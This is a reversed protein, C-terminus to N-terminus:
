LTQQRHLVRMRAGGAREIARDPSPTEALWAELGAGREDVTQARHRDHPRRSQMVQGGILRHEWTPDRISLADRRELLTAPSPLLCPTHVAFDKVKIAGDADSGADISSNVSHLRLNKVSSELELFSGKFVRPVKSGKEPKSPTVDYEAQANPQSEDKSVSRSLDFFDDLSDLADLASKTQAMMAGCDIPPSESDELLMAVTETEEIPSLGKEDVQEAGPVEKTGWTAFTFEADLDVVLKNADEVNEYIGIICDRITNLWHRLQWSCHEPQEEHLELLPEYM